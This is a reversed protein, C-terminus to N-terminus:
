VSKSFFKIRRVIGKKEEEETSREREREKKEVESVSTVSVCCLIDSPM